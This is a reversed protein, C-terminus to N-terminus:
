CTSMLPSAVISQPSNEDKMMSKPICLTACSGSLGGPYWTAGCGGCLTCQRGKARLLHCVDRPANEVSPADDSTTLTYSLLHTSHCVICTCAPAWTLATSCMGMIFWNATAVDSALTSNKSSLM